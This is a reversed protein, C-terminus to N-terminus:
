LARSTHKKKNVDATIQIVELQQSPAHSSAVPIIIRM